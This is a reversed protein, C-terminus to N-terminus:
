HQILRQLLVDLPASRGVVFRKARMSHRKCRLSRHCQNGNPMTVACHAEVDIPG